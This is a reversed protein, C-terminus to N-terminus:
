YDSLNEFLPAWTVSIALVPDGESSEVLAQDSVFSVFFKVVCNDSTNFLEDEIKLREM